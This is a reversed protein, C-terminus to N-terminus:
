AVGSRGSRAHAAVLLGGAIVPVLATYLLADAAGSLGHLGGPPRVLTVAAIAVGLLLFVIGGIREHRWALWASAAALAIVFLCFAVGEWRVPGAPKSFMGGVLYLGAFWVWFAAWVTVLARAILRFLQGADAPRAPTAENM